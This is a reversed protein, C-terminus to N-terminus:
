GISKYTRPLRSSLGTVIEYAITGAHQALEEATIVENDQRGILVVEEELEVADDKVEVMIQDMCVAGVVRCRKGRILVESHNSLARPYGDAYGVAVTAINVNSATKYMHGYSIGRGKPVKKLFVVKSKLSLAPKFNFHERLNEDPYIGYLILGPRVLNFHSEKYGLIGISNAAHFYDFTIDPKLEEIISNFIELQKRTFEHDTDALPFHTYLGELKLNSFSAAEEIFAVAEEYM